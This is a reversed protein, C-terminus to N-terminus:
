SNGANAKDKALSKEHNNAALYAVVAGMQLAMYHEETLKGFIFLVTSVVGAGLALIFRRGGAAERWATLSAASM